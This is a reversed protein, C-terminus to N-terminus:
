SYTTEVLTCLGNGHWTNGIKQTFFCTMIGFDTHFDLGFKKQLRFDGFGM